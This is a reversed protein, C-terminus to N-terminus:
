TYFFVTYEGALSVVPGQLRPQDTEFDFAWKLIKSIKYFFSLGFLIINQRRDYSGRANIQYQGATYGVAVETKLSPRSSDLEYNFVSGVHIHKIPTWVLDGNIKIPKKDKKGVQALLPYTLGFKAALNEAKYSEGAQVSSGEENQSANLELKAGKALFDKLSFGGSFENASSLKATVEINNEKWEYKPEIVASVVEKKDKKNVSRSVTAKMTVDNSTKTQTVLKLTGDFPFDQALLDKSDKGYDSYHKAM